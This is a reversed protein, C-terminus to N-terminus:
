KSGIKVDYLDKFCVLIRKRRGCNKIKEWVWCKPSVLTLFFSGTKPFPHQSVNNLYKKDGKYSKCCSVKMRMERSIEATTVISCTKKRMLDNLINWLNQKYKIARTSTEMMKPIWPITLLSNRRYIKLM